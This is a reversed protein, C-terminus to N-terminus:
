LMAFAPALVGAVRSAPLASPAPAGDKMFALVIPFGRGPVAVFASLETALIWRGAATEIERLEAVATALPPHQFSHLNVTSVERVGAARWLTVTDAWVYGPYWLGDFPDPAFEGLAAM